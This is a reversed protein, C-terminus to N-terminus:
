HSLDKPTRPQANTVSGRMPDFSTQGRAALDTAEGGPHRPTPSPRPTVALGALRRRAWSRELRPRRIGGIHKIAHAVYVGGGPLSKKAAWQDVRSIWRRLRGRGLLPIPYHHSVSELECDLLHLWDTLRGASVSHKGHWPSAKRLSRLFQSFGFLSYPNFAIIVMHGSPRLVRRMERLYGHPNDDFELAHIAVIMDVSDTEFPLEDGHCIVSAAGGASRPSAYVRHNIPSADILRQSPLPGLQLVNYGFSLDLVSQLRQRVSDAVAMGHETSYWTELAETIAISQPQATKNVRRLTAM